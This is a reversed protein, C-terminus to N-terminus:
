FWRIFLGQLRYFGTTGRVDAAPRPRQLPLPHQVRPATEPNRQGRLLRWQGFRRCFCVSRRGSSLRRVASLCVCLSLSVPRVVGYDYLDCDNSIIWTPGGLGFVWRCSTTRCTQQELQGFPALSWVDGDARSANASVQTSPNSSPTSSVGAPAETQGGAPYISGGGFELALGNQPPPPPPPPFSSFPAVVGEPAGMADQSGQLDSVSLCVLTLRGNPRSGGLSHSPSFFFFFLESLLAVAM